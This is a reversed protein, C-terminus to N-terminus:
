ATAQMSSATCGLQTGTWSAMCDADVSHLVNDMVRHARQAAAVDDVLLQVDAGPQVLDAVKPLMGHYARPQIGKDKLM